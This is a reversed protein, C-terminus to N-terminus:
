QYHWPDRDSGGINIGPNIRVIKEERRVDPYTKILAIEVIRDRTTDTGTAEIDLFILPRSLKM